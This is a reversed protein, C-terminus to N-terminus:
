QNKPKNKHARIFNSLFLRAKLRENNVETETVEKPETEKDSQSKLAYPKNPYEIPKTGKKVFARLVPSVDCLAEYIYMGQLWANYNLEEKEREKRIKYAELYFKPLTTDGEWFEEASM